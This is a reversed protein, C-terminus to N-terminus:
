APAHALLAELKRDHIGERLLGLHTQRVYDLTTGYLGRSREFITRLQTPTLDGAYNPSNRNLTFALAEGGVVPCRVWRPDYVGSSVLPEWLGAAEPTLRLAPVCSYTMALPCTIGAEVQAVMIFRAARAVHAGPRDDAWPAGTVGREVSLRMLEHWAPHFRIEDVREGSRDHREIAPPHENAEFGWRIAEAGGLVAGLDRCDDEFAAAGERRLGELLAADGDLVNDGHREPPLDTAASRIEALTM